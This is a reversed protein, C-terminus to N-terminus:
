PNAQPAPLEIGEAVAVRELAREMISRALGAARQLELHLVVDAPSRSACQASFREFAGLNLVLEVIHKPCECEITRSATRPDLHRTFADIAEYYHNDCDFVPFGLETM